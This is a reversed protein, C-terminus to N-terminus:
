KGQTQTKRPMKRNREVWDFVVRTLWRLVGFIAFVLTFRFMLFRVSASFGAVFSVLNGVVSIALCKSWGPARGGELAYRSSRLIMRLVVTEILVVALEGFLIQSISPWKVDVLVINLILWTVNTVALWIFFFPNWTRVTKRVLLTIIIAELVLAPLFNYYQVFSVSYPLPRPVAVIPDAFASVAPLMIFLALFFAAVLEVNEHGLNSSVIKM